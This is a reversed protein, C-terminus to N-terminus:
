SWGGGYTKYFIHRGIKKMKKMSSAWRPKVYTAHYHTAAGVDSMYLHKDDNIVKRALAQAEAWSRKDTIRDRIGDCAFSFQCRNRKNKNQYVVGCITNPYAPNKLRNLVVQAVATRGSEPEGRAEFYIATALCKVETASRASAPIKANVWAHNAGAEPDVIAGKTKGAMVADFPENAADAHDAPAYSLLVPKAPGTKKTETDAPVAAEAAKMPPAETTREEGPAAESVATTKPKALVFAARPLGAGDDVPAFLAATEIVGASIAGMPKDVDLDAKGARNITDARAISGTTIPDFGRDVRVATGKPVGPGILAAFARREAGGADKVVLRVQWRDNRAVQDTFRSLADLPAISQTSLAFFLGALLARRHVTGRRVQQRQRGRVVM